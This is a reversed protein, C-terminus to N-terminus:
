IKAAKSEVCAAEIQGVLEDEDFPKRLLSAAGADRLRGVLHEGNATMIM